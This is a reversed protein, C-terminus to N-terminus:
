KYYNKMLEGLERAAPDTSHILSEYIRHQENQTKNQSLKYASEFTIPEISFAIIGKLLEDFYHQDLAKFKEQWTPEFYAITKELLLSAAEKQNLLKCKGIVHVAVYNWTPVNRNHEYHEPSIYAHPGTFVLKVMADDHLLKAHPNAVSLHTHLLLKEASHEVIFPLHTAEPTEKGNTLLLGFPHAAIFALQEELDNHKFHHPVYM